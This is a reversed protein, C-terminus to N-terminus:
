FEEEEVVFQEKITADALYKKLQEFQQETITQLDNRSTFGFYSYILEALASQTWNHQRWLSRLEEAKTRDMQWASPLMTRDSTVASASAPADRWAESTPNGYAILNTGHIQEILKISPQYNAAQLQLSQQHYEYPAQWVPHLTLNVVWDDKTGRKDTRKGAEIVPFKAKVQRRTLLYVIYSRTQENVFPSTKIAGVEEKTEDLVRAISQNDEVGSAQLRAFEASGALLLEWIYFYFDGVKSCGLPCNHNTGAVPCPESNEVPAFYNQADAVFKTHITARDCFHLPRSATYAAMKSDFTKLEDDYAPVVNLSDVYLSGNNETANYAQKLIARLQPPAEIRFKDNLNKGASRATKKEGKWVTITPKIAKRKLTKKDNLGKIRSM